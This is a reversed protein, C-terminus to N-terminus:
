FLNLPDPGFINNAGKKQQLIMKLFEICYVPISYLKCSQNLTKIEFNNLSLKVAIASQKEQIFYQMSKLRGDSESKVEIPIIESKNKASVLNIVFDIEAKQIHKDRLWYLLEPTEMCGNIFALHQAVFQEMIQGKTVLNQKFDNELVDWELKHLYNLLGIDLFYIKFISYDISAHLPIGNCDTHFTQYLLKADCLLELSKKIERSQSEQDLKQYVIKRGTQGSLTQFIRWLRQTNVRKQYKPFDLQYTQVISRHVNRTELLSKSEIYTNVAKPMGGVFFYVKLLEIFHLHLYGPVSYNFNQLKPEISDDSIVKNLHSVLSQQAQQEDLALLFEGFSMPGLFLFDVRGVPFDFSITKENLMFELLSGAAIIAIDPRKEYFYRLSKLAMPSEQIEDFFILTNNSIKSKIKIEIENVIKSIDIENSSLTSLNEHDFNIEVLQKNYRECFNHVLTTKGVQRAGRLILPKRYKSDFWKSLDDEAFRKM